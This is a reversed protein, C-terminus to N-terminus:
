GEELISDDIDIWMDNYCSICIFIKRKRKRKQTYGRYHYGIYRAYLISGMEIEIQKKCRDCIPNLNSYKTLMCKNSIKVKVIAM